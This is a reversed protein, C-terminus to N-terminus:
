SRIPSKRVLTRHDRVLRLPRVGPGAPLSSDTAPLPKKTNAAVPSKAPEKSKTPPGQVAATKGTAVQCLAEEMSLPLWADNPRHNSRWSRSLSRVARTALRWGRTLVGFAAAGALVAAGFAMVFLAVFVCGALFVLLVVVYVLLHPDIQFSFDATM